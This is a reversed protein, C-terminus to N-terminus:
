NLYDKEENETNEKEQADLWERIKNVPPLFQWEHQSPLFRHTLRDIIAITMVGPM